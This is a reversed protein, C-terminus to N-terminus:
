RPSWVRRRTSWQSGTGGPAPRVPSRYQRFLSRGSSVVLGQSTEALCDPEPIELVSPASDLLDNPRFAGDMPPVTISAEGRGFWDDVAKRLPSV